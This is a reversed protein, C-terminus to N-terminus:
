NDDGSEIVATAVPVCTVVDLALATTPAATDDVAVWVPQGRYSAPGLVRVGPGCASADFSESDGNPEAETTTATRDGHAAVLEAAFTALAAPGDLDVDGFGGPAADTDDAAIAVDAEPPAGGDATWSGDGLDPAPAGTPAPADLRESTGADGHDGLDAPEDGEAAFPQFVEDTGAGALDTDDSSGARMTAVVVGLVGVALLAAAASLWRATTTTTTTSRRSRVAAVSPADIRSGIAEDFAGLAAALHRERAGADADPVEAVETRVARLREALAVVDADVRAREDATLEGDLYASALLWPDHHDTM